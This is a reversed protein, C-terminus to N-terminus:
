SYINAAKLLDSEKFTKYPLENGVRRRPLPYSTQVRRSSEAM